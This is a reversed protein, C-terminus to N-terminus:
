GCERKITEPSDRHDFGFGDFYCRVLADLAVLILNFM